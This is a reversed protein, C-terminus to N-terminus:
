HLKASFAAIQADNFMQLATENWLPCCCPGCVCNVETVKSLSCHACVASSGTGGGASETDDKQHIRVCGNGLRVFCMNFTERESFTLKLLKRTSGDSSSIVVVIVLIVLIM